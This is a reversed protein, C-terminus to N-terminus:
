STVDLTAIGQLHRHKGTTEVLNSYLFREIWFAAGAPDAAGCRVSFHRDDGRVRRSAAREFFRIARAWRM